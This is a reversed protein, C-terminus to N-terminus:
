PGGAVRRRLPPRVTGVVEKSVPRPLRRVTPFARAPFPGRPRIEAGTSIKRRRRSGLRARTRADMGTTRAYISTAIRRRVAYDDLLSEMCRMRRIRAYTGPKMTAWIIRPEPPMAKASLADAFGATAFDVARTTRAPPQKQPM